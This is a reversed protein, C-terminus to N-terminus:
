QLYSAHSYFSPVARVTGPFSTPLPLSHFTISRSCEWILCSQIRREIDTPKGRLKTQTHGRQTARCSEHSLHFDLLADIQFTKHFRFFFGLLNNWSNFTYPSLTIDRVLTKSYCFRNESPRSCTFFLNGPRGEVDFVSSFTSFILSITSRITLCNILLVVKLGQGLESFSHPLFYRIQPLLFWPNQM